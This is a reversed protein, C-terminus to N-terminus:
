IIRNGQKKSKKRRGLSTFVPKGEWLWKIAILALKTTNCVSAFFVLLGPHKELYRIRSLFKIFKKPVFKKSTLSYLSIWFRDEATRPHRLSVYMQDFSKTANGEIQEETILKAELAKQTLITNPFYILSFMHMYFPRSIKLLLDLGERKNELTEFPNDVIIDYFPVIRLDRMIRSTHILKEDSVNREFIQKRIRESGTQIGIEVRELGADRLMRMIKKDTTLPHQMCHFPLAIERKYKEVFEVVWEEDWSFVEDIFDIRKLKPFLERQIKIEDIVNQVSRLRVLRGKGKYLSHFVSNCCYSCQYPCGRSTLIDLNFAMLGPDQHSVKDDQLFYKNEDGFDPFPLSDLDDILPRIPNKTIQGNRRIWLNQIEDPNEGISYNQALELIAREGEGLCILDAIKISQVPVVTAHTGGWLVQKELINQIQHTIESAIDLFSSRVSIGILDPNIVGLLDSLLEYEKKSPIEMLDLAINKEKFFILSM